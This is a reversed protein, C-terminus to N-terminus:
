CCRHEFPSVYIDPSSNGRAHRVTSRHIRNVGCLFAWVPLIHIINSCREGSVSIVTTMFIDSVFILLNNIDEKWQAVASAEYEWVAKACKAWPDRPLDESDEITEGSNTDDESEAEDVTSMSEPAADGGSGEFFSENSQGVSADSGESKTEITKCDHLEACQYSIGSHLGRVQWDTDKVSSEEVARSTSPRSIDLGGAM